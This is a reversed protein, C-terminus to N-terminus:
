WPLGLEACFSAEAVQTVVHRRRAARRTATDPRRWLSVLRLASGGLSGILGLPFCTSGSANVARSISSGFRWIILALSTLSCSSLMTFPALAQFPPAPLSTLALLDKDFSSSSAIVAMSKSSCDDMDACWIIFPSRFSEETLSAIAFTAFSSTSSSVSALSTSIAGSARASRMSPIVRFAKRSMSAPSKLSALTRKSLAPAIPSAKWLNVKTASPLGIGGGLGLSFTWDSASIRAAIRRSRCWSSKTPMKPAWAFHACKM